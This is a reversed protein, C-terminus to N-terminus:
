YKITHININYTVVGNVHEKVFNWIHLFVIQTYQCRWPWTKDFACLNFILISRLMETACEYVACVDVYIINSLLITFCLLHIRHPTQRLSWMINSKATRSLSVASAVCYYIGRRNPKSQMTRKTTIYLLLLLLLSRCRATSQFASSLAFWKQIDAFAAGWENRHNLWVTNAFAGKTHSFAKCNWVNIIISLM